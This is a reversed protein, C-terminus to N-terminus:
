PVNFNLLLLLNHFTDNFNNARIEVYHGLLLSMDSYKIEKEEKTLRKVRKLIMLYKLYLKYKIM